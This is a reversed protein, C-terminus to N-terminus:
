RRPPTAGVRSQFAASEGVVDRTQALEEFLGSQQDRTVVVTLRNMQVIVVDISRSAALRRSTFAPVSSKMAIISRSPRAAPGEPAPTRRASPSASRDAAGIRCASKRPARASRVLHGRVVRAFGDGILPYPGGVRQRRVGASLELHDKRGDSVELGDRVQRRRM